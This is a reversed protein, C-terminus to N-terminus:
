ENLMAIKSKLEAIEKKLDEKKREMLALMGNGSKSKANLFGLNNEYTKLDNELHELQRQLKQRETQVANKGEGSINKVRERYNNLRAKQGKMDLNDFFFDVIEKYAAYLKDKEKFPVHGVQNWEAMLDRVQQPEANQLDEKLAKLKEIVAQKREMNAKEEAKEGGLAKEKAEFFADCAGRFREWLATGVKHPVPGVTKWEKQLNVLIDTTKRWETSEKLSEAKECLATKKAINANQEERQSKFFNAKAGFFADCLARFRDFLQSNVKKNAFGLKRWEEQFGLVVKTQEEWDKINHIANLDIAEFKECIAIKGAENVAEQEKIKEFHEQHRKNVVTSAAKFRAWIEERVAPSVPGLGKWEEHLDQLRRFAQVVDAADGLKEAEECLETKRELNKKFDYDRLEKNIKLADYFQENLTNYQKWLDNVDKPDVMGVEKFQKQLEIFTNYQQGVGEADQAIAIMQKLIEQKKELNAKMEQNRAEVMAARAEKQINLLEKLRPELEDPKSEFGAVDADDELLKKMEADVEQQRLKYYVLKLYNIEDRVEDTTQNVIEALRDLIEQRNAYIKKEVANGAPLEQANQQMTENEEAM